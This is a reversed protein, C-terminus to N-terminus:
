LFVDVKRQHEQPSDSQWTTLDDLQRFGIHISVGGDDTLGVVWSLHSFITTEISKKGYNKLEGGFFIPSITGWFNIVMIKRLTPFFVDGLQIATSGQIESCIVAICYYKRYKGSPLKMFLWLGM